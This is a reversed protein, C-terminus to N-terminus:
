SQVFDSRSGRSVSQPCSLSVQRNLNENEPKANRGGLWLASARCLLLSWGPFKQAGGQPPPSFTSQDRHGAKTQSLLFWQGVRTPASLFFQDSFLPPLFGIPLFPGFIGWKEVWLSPTAKKETQYQLPLTLGTVHRYNHRGIISQLIQSMKDIWFYRLDTGKRGSTSHSSSLTKTFPHGILGGWKGYSHM